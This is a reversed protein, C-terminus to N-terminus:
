HQVQDQKPRQLTSAAKADPSTLESFRPRSGTHYKGTVADDVRVVDECRVLDDVGECRDEVAIAFKQRGNGGKAQVERQGCKHCDQDSYAHKMGNTM